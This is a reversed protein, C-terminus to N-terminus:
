EPYLQQGSDEDIVKIADVPCSRAAALITERDDNTPQKVVAVNDDNMEFTQAAEDCCIGDGICTDADVVIKLKGM